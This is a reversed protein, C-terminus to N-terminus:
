NAHTKLGTPASGIYYGALCNQYGMGVAFLPSLYSIISDTHNYGFPITGFDPM